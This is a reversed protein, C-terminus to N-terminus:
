LFSFFIITNAHQGFHMGCVSELFLCWFIYGHYAKINYFVHTHAVMFVNWVIAMPIQVALRSLHSKWKDRCYDDDATQQQLLHIAIFAHFFFALSYHVHFVNRIFIVVHFYIIHIRLTISKHAVVPLKADM